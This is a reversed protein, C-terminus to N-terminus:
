IFEIGETTVNYEIRSDPNQVNYIDLIHAYRHIVKPESDVNHSQYYKVADVLVDPSVDSDLYRVYCHDNMSMLRRSFISESRSERYMRNLWSMLDSAIDDDLGILFSPNSKSFLSHARSIGNGTPHPGKLFLNGKSIGGRVFLGFKNLLYTQIERVIDLLDMLDSCSSTSTELAVVIADGILYSRFMTSRGLSANIMATRKGVKDLADSLAEVILREDDEAIESFAVFDLFAVYHQGLEEADM